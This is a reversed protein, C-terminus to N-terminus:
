FRDHNCSWPEKKPLDMTMHILDDTQVIIELVTGREGSSYYGMVQVVIGGGGLLSTSDWVSILIKRGRSNISTLGIIPRGLKSIM